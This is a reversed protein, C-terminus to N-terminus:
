LNTEETPRRSLFVSPPLLGDEILTVGPSWVTARAQIWKVYGDAMPLVQCEVM